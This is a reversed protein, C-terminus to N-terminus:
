FKIAKNISVDKFIVFKPSSRCCSDVSVLNLMLLQDSYLIFGHLKTITNKKGTKLVRQNDLTSM